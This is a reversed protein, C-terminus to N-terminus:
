PVDPAFGPHMLTKAELRAAEAEENTDFTRVTILRGFHPIRAGWRTGSKTERREVTGDIRNQGNLRQSADRLNDFRSDSRRRNRHDITRRPWRGKVYLWAVRHARHRLNQSAANDRRPPM